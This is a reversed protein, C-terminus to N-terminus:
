RVKRVGVGGAVIDVSVRGVEGRAAVFDAFVGGVIGEEKAAVFKASKGGAVWKTAVFDAWWWWIQPSEVAGGRLWLIQVYEVLEGVGECGRFRGVVVGARVWRIQM